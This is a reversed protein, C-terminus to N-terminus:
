GNGCKKWKCCGFCANKHLFDFRLIYVLPDCLPNLFVFCESVRIVYIDADNLSQKQSMVIGIISKPVHSIVLIAIIMGLTITMTKMKEGKTTSKVIKRSKQKQINTQKTTSNDEFKTICTSSNAETMDSNDNMPGSKSNEAFITCRTRTTLPVKRTPRKCNGTPHIRRWSRYTRSILGVYFVCVLLIISLKLPQMMFVHTEWNQGFIGIPSCVTPRFDAFITLWVAFYAVCIIFLALTIWIASIKHCPNNALPFTALFREICIWLTQLMSFILTGYIFLLRFFCHEPAMNVISDSFINLVDYNITQICFIVDSVSLCITLTEFRTTSDKKKRFFAVLCILNLITAVMALTITLYSLKFEENESVQVVISSNEISTNNGDAM